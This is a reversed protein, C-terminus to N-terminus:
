ATASDAKCVVAGVRSICQTTTGVSFSPVVDSTYTSLFTLAAQGCKTCAPPVTGFWPSPYEHQCTWVNPYNVTWGTWWNRKNLEESVIKRIEGHDEESLIVRKKTKPSENAPERSKKELEALEEATGELEEVTGDPRTVKKKM